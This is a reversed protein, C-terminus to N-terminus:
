APAHGDEHLTISVIVGHHVEYLAVQQWSGSADHLSLVAAAHRAGGLLDVVEYGFGPRAARRADYWRMLDDFGRLAVDPARVPAEPALLARAAALDGAAHADFWARLVEAPVRTM